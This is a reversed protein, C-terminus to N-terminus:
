ITQLVYRIMLLALPSYIETQSSTNHFYWSKIVSVVNPRMYLSMKPICGPWGQRESWPGNGQWSMIVGFSFTWDCPYNPLKGQRRLCFRSFYPFGLCYSTMSFSYLFLTMFLDKILIRIILRQNNWSNTDDDNWKETYCNLTIHSSPIFWQCNISLIM